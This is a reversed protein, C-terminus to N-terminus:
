WSIDTAPADTEDDPEDPADVPEIRVEVVGARIMELERAAAKSLDIIRGEQFPGRDNIRVVVSAGTDLRVVRVRTGFPLTQHAATMADPDYTDGSATTRGVFKDAYYSAKGRQRVDLDSAPGAAQTSSCAPLAALLAGVLLLAAPHRRRAPRGLRPLFPLM